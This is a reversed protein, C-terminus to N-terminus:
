RRSGGWDLPIAQAHPLERERPVARGLAILAGRITGAHAVVLAPGSGSAVADLAQRTREVQSRLSEGGPFAFDPAGAEFAAFLEPSDEDIQAVPRGEWTGRRSEILSDLITPPIGIADAVATATQRARLLPSCWLAVVSLAAAQAALRAAQERGVESLPPDRRGLILGSANDVTEGHRAIFLPVPTSHLQPASASRQSTGALLGAPM